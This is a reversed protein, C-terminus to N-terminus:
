KIHETFQKMVKKVDEIAEDKILETVKPILKMAFEKDFTGQEQRQFSEELLQKVRAKNEDETRELIFHYFKEQGETM